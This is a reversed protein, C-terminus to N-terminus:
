NLEFSLSLGAEEYLNLSMMEAQARYHHKSYVFLLLVALDALEDGTLSNENFSIEVLRNVRAFEYDFHQKKCLEKQLMGLVFRIYGNSAVTVLENLCAMGIRRLSPVVLVM